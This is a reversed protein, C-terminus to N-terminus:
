RRAGERARIFEIDEASAPEIIRRTHWRAAAEGEWRIGYVKAKVKTNHTIGEVVGLDPRQYNTHDPDHFGKRVVLDGVALPPFPEIHVHARSPMVATIRLGTFDDLAIGTWGAGIDKAHVLWGVYTLQLTSLVIPVGRDANILEHAEIHAMVRASM